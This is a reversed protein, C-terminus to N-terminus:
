IYLIITSRIDHEYYIKYRMNHMTYIMINKVKKIYMTSHHGLIIYM